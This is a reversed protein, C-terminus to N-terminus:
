RGLYSISDFTPRHVRRFELCHVTHVYYQKTLMTGCESRVRIVGSESYPLGAVDSGHILSVFVTVRYCLM